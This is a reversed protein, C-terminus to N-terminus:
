APMVILVLNYSVLHPLGICNRRVLNHMSFYANPTWIKSWDFPGWRVIRNLCLDTWTQHSTSLGDWVLFWFSLWCDWYAIYITCKCCGILEWRHIYWIWGWIRLSWRSIRPEGCVLSLRFELTDVWGKRCVLVWKSWVSRIDEPELSFNKTWRVSLLTSVWAHRTLSFDKCEVVPDEWFWCTCSLLQQSPVSAVKSLSTESFPGTISSFCLVFLYQIWCKVYANSFGAISLLSFKYVIQLFTNFEVNSTHM